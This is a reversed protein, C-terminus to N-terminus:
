GLLIFVFIKRRGTWDSLKGGIVSAAVVVVSQALTGFFIQQPVDAEASGIKDLL